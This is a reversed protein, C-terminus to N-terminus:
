NRIPDNYGYDEISKMIQRIQKKPHRKANGEYEKLEDINIYELEMQKRRGGKKKKGGCM